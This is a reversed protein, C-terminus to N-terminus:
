LKPIIGSPGSMVRCKAKMDTLDIDNGKRKYKFEIDDCLQVSPLATCGSLFCGSLFLLVYTVVIVLKM